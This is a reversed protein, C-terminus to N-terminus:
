GRAQTAALLAALEKELSALASRAGPDAIRNRMEYPDAQLDYLEEMGPLETYRIYKWRETRVAQYGMNAMRPFVRDSFHEILFSKRRTPDLLSRGHM